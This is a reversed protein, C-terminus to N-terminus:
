IFEIFYLSKNFVDFMNPQVTVVGKTFVTTDVPTFDLKNLVRNPIKTKVIIDQKFFNGFTRTEDLSLGFQKAEFSGPGARFGGYNQIDLMEEKGISRYLTTSGFLGNLVQGTSSIVSGTAYYSIAMGIGAGVAAGLVGAGVYWGWHLDLEKDPIYDVAATIGVGIIAGIIATLVFFALHGTPDVYMVPNNLGYAYLDVGGITEPDLYDVTDMSIFRGTQPDYYRSM